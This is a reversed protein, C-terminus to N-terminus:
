LSGYVFSTKVSIRHNCFGYAQVWITISLPNGSVSLMVEWTGGFTCVDRWLPMITFCWAVRRTHTHAHTHLSKQYTLRIITRLGNGLQSVGMPLPRANTVWLGRLALSSLFSNFSISIGVNTTITFTKGKPHQPLLYISVSIRRVEVWRFNIFFAVESLGTSHGMCFLCRDMWALFYWLAFSDPLAYYSM